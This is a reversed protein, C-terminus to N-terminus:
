EFIIARAYSPFDPTNICRLIPNVRAKPSTGLSPLWWFPGSLSVNGDSLFQRITEISVGPHRLLIAVGLANTEARVTYARDRHEIKAPINLAQCFSVCLRALQFQEKQSHCTWYDCVRIIRSAGPIHPIRQEEAALRVARKLEPGRLFDLVRTYRRAMCTFVLAAARVTFPHPNLFNNSMWAERLAAHYCRTVRMLTKEHGLRYLQGFTLHEIRM